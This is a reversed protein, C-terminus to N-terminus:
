DRQDRKKNVSIAIISSTGPNEVVTVLEQVKLSDARVGVKAYEVKHLLIQFHVIFLVQEMEVSTISTRRHNPQSFNNAPLPRVTCSKSGSQNKMADVFDNFLIQTVNCVMSTPKFSGPVNQLLKTKKEEDSIEKDYSGLEDIVRIFTLLFKDQNERRRTSYWRVSVILLTPLLNIIPLPTYAVFHMGYNRPHNRM